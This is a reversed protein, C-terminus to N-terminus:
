PRQKIVQGNGGGNSEPHHPDKRHSPKDADAVCRHIHEEVEDSFFQLDELNRFNLKGGKGDENPEFFLIYNNEVAEKLVTLYNSLERNLLTLM